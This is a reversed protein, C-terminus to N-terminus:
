PLREKGLPRTPPVPFRLRKIPQAPVDRVSAPARQIERLLQSFNRDYARGDIRHDACVKAKSDGRLITSVFMSGLEEPLGPLREVLRALRGMTVESIVAAGM